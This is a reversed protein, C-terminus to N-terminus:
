GRSDKKGSKKSKGTSGLKASKKSAKETSKKSKKKSPKARGNFDLAIGMWYDLDSKTKTGAPGVFVFGRPSPRRKMFDMERCGKRKLVDDHIDLDFRVMLDDKLVGVCMKGNLM